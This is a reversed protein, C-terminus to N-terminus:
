ASWRPKRKELFAAIGEHGEESLLCAAFREAAFEAMADRELRRSALLIEKTAANAGPACRRVLERISQEAANLSETSDVVLDALGLAHAEGGDFRAGTLMIRRAAALGIRSTVFPAIQAPPIGLTTETLAFQASELAVVVDGACLMGLGGAIAAGEVLVVVVQPMENLRAFLEGARRNAQAVDAATGTEGQFAAQFEAIDGGACFVGGRGRLTIGRLQRDGRAVKLAQSLESMMGASLANRAHPRNLWITLWGDGSELDIHETDPWNGM